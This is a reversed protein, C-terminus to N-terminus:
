RAVAIVELALTADLSPLGEFLVATSASPRSKDYYDWRIARLKELATRSLPYASSWFVDKFGAGFPELAKQLRGFALRFDADQNGFTLQTGSIVIRPSNVLAIQSYNPSQTLSPPNLLVVSQAPASDLRGVAECEALPEVALRQLQVVNAAANPYAAAITSRATAADDLSSLFCTARLVSAPAVNAAAIATQLQTLSQRVDKTQQGSFFAVGNPNPAKKDLATSEIVVQAGELPLGGVQITSVVPLPLKRETFIESVLAAIRRMDGSGTVFARLKVITAGRNDQILARLADRTQPTMLGKSSLPSVRYTLTSTAALIASPPDPLAPLTQTVPEKDERKPKKQKREPQALAGTALSLAALIPLFRQM